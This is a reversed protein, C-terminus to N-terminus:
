ELFQFFTVLPACRIVNLRHTDLALSATNLLCGPAVGWSFRLDLRQASFARNMLNNLRVKLLGPANSWAIM